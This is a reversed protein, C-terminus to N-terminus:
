VKRKPLFPPVSERDLFNWFTITQVFGYPNIWVYTPYGIPRFIATLKEDLIISTLGSRFYQDGFRTQFSSIRERNDKTILSNVMLVKVEGKYKEKFYEIEKQHFICNGCSVSWFDLILFKGKFEKLTIERTEGDEYIIHKMEWFEKPVKSGVTLIPLEKIDTPATEKSSVQAMVPCNLLVHFLLLVGSLLSLPNKPTLFEPNIAQKTRISNESKYINLDTM